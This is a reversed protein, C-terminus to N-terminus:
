RDAIFDRPCSGTLKRFTRAFHSQDAFGLAAATDSVRAGVTRLMSKSRDVRLRMLFGMPSEGTRLRFQRAFHFRSVGALRALEELMIREGANAEMYVRVREFSRMGLAGPIAGSPVVGNGTSAFLRYCLATAVLEVIRHQAAHVLQCSEEILVRVLYEVVPDKLDATLCAGPLHSLRVGKETAAQEVLKPDLCVWTVEHLADWEYEFGSVDSQPSVREDDAGGSLANSRSIRPVSGSFSGIGYFALPATCVAGSSSFRATIIQVQSWRRSQVRACDPDRTSAVLACLFDQPTARRRYTRRPQARAPTGSSYSSAHTDM